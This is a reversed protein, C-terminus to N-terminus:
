LKVEVGLKKNRELINKEASILDSYRKKHKVFPKITQLLYLLDKKSYVYIGWCDQNYKRGYFTGKQSALGFKANVGLDNLKKYIQFLINKDYTRIRFRASGNSIAINGEADTYGALFSFFNNKDKIIWDEIKDLKPILFYFSKDLNIWICYVGDSREKIMYHGYIGYIQKILECQEQKTTNSKIMITSSEDKSKVNLDGLRFGIMYAKLMSDGNFRKKPYIINALSANRMKINYRKLKQFITVSNCNFKKAIESCSLNKNVYLDKLKKPAIKIIKKPRTKIGAEKLKYYVACSSIGLMKAIKQTSFEKEQYLERLKNKPIDIRLKPTRLKIKYEKLRKQIVSPDCNFKKAIKYTSLKANLYLRKLIKKPFILKSSM